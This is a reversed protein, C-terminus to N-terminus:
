RQRRAQGGMEKARVSIRKDIWNVVELSPSAEGAPLYALAINAAPM